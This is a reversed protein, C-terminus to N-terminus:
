CSSAPVAPPLDALTQELLANYRSFADVFAELDGESWSGLVKELVGIRVEAVERVRARAVESVHLIVARRDDPDAEKTILGLDVLSHVSRSVAGKDLHFVDVLVSARLPGMTTLYTLVLYAAPTLDEHVMAAREAVVRRSRRMLVGVERELSQLMEIRDM